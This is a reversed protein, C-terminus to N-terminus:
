ALGPRREWRMVQRLGVSVAEATDTASPGIGSWHLNGGDPHVTVPPCLSTFLKQVSVDIECIAILRFRSVVRKGECISLACSM